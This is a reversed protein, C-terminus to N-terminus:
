SAEGILQTIKIGFNEDIVVVEGRAILKEHVYLGVPETAQQDLQLVMGPSLAIIDRMAMRSSGIRVTLEVKVDMVLQMNKTEPMTNM